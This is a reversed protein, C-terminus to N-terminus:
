FHLGFAKLCLEFATWLVLIVHIWPDCMKSLRRTTSIAGLLWRLVAILYPLM